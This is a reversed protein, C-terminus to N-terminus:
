VAYYKHKTLNMQKIKNLTKNKLIYLMTKIKFVIQESKAFVVTQM